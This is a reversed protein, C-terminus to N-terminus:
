LDMFNKYILQPFRSPFVKREQILKHVIWWFESNTFIDTIYMGTIDDSHTVLVSLDERLTKEGYITKFQALTQNLEEPRIDYGRDAVM